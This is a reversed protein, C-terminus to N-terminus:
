ICAYSVDMYITLVPYFCRILLECYKRRNEETSGGSTHAALATQQDSLASASSPPSGGCMRRFEKLVVHLQKNERELALLGQLSRRMSSSEKGSREIQLQLERNKRKLTEVQANLTNTSETLELVRANTTVTLAIEAQDAAVKNGAAVIRLEAEVDKRLAVEDEVQRRLSAVLAREAALERQSAALRHASAEAQAQAERARAELAGVEAELSRLRVEDSSGLKAEIPGVSTDVAEGPADTDATLAPKAIQQQTISYSESMAQAARQIAIEVDQQFASEIDRDRLQLELARREQDERSRLSERERVVEQRERRVASSEESHKQNAQHVKALLGKLKAIRFPHFIM